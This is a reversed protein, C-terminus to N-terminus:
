FKMRVRGNQRKEEEVEEEKMEMEKVEKGVEEMGDGAEEQSQCSRSYRQFECSDKIDLYRNTLILVLEFFNLFIKQWSLNGQMANIAYM